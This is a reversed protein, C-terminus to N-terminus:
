INKKEKKFLSITGRLHQDQQQDIICSKEQQAM